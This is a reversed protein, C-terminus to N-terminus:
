YAYFVADFSNHAHIRFRLRYDLGLQTIWAPIRWLDDRRHYGAIALIPRNRRILAEAGTLAEMEHGEVDLKLYDVRANPLCDDLRLVQIHSNGEGGLTSAEGHGGSFSLSANVSSVGCPLCTVPASLSRAREALLPFNAPDPEFAWAERLTLYRMAEALTDGNHAGADVFGLPNHVHNTIFDPFYQPAAVPAAPIDRTQGLRYRLIASLFARSPEDELMAFSDRLATEHTGYGRRDDLWYRWGMAGDLGDFYHQPLLIRAFGASECAASLAAHNAGPERNFVGIWLPLANWGAPLAMLPAVPCGAFCSAEGRSVVFGRVTIGLSVLAAHLDRAFSGCGFILVGDQRAEALAATADEFSLSPFGTASM